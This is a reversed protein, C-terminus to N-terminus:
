LAESLHGRDCCEVAFAVRVRECTAVSKSATPAGAGIANMWRSAAMMAGSPVAPTAISCCATVKMVRYVRKHSAPKLGAALAQRKFIALVRRYGYTPLEAIM